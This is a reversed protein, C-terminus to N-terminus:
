LGQMLTVQLRFVVSTFNLVSCALKLSVPVIEGDFAGSKQAAIAREFSKIAFDDQHVNIASTLPMLFDCVKQRLWHVRPDAAGIVGSRLKEHFRMSTLVFSLQMEWQTTTICTGFGM